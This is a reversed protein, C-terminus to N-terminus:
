NCWRLGHKLQTKKREQECIEIHAPNPNKCYEKNDICSNYTNLIHDGGPFIINYNGKKNGKV